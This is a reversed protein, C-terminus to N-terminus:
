PVSAPCIFEATQGANLPNVDLTDKAVMNVVYAVGCTAAFDLAVPSPSYDVIPPNSVDTRFDYIPNNNAYLTFLELKAGPQVKITFPDIHIRCQDTAAIYCGGNIPSAFIDPAARAPAGDSYVLGLLLFAAVVVLVNLIYRKHM